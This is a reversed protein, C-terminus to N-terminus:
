ALFSAALSEFELRQVNQLADVHQGTHMASEVADVFEFPDWQASPVLRKALAEDGTVGLYAEVQSALSSYCPHDGTRRFWYKANPYDPERRHMIGHLFSGDASGIDQSVTHSEDLYDHWLLAASRALNATSPSLGLADVAQGLAAIPRASARQESGLAPLDGTDIARLFAAYAPNSTQSM